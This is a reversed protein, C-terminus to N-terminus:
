KKPVEEPSEGSDNAADGDMRLVMVSMIEAQSLILYTTDDDIKLNNTAMVRSFTVYSGTKLKSAEIANPANEVLPGMRIVQGFQPYETEKSPLIILSGATSNPDIIKVLVKDGRPYFDCQDLKIQTM